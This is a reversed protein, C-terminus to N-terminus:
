LAGARYLRELADTWVSQMSDIEDEEVVDDIILTYERTLVSHEIQLTTVPEEDTDNWQWKISEGEREEIVTATRIEHNRWREGWVFTLENNNRIVEDAFWRSLGHATAILQWIINASTSKLGHEIHITRM